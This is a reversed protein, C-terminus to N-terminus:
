LVRIPAAVSGSSLSVSYGSYDNAAEGYIDAGQKTWVGSVRKYVRVLGKQYNNYIAGIAVTSGDSSLSVSYGSGENAAEGDIDLGTQVWQAQLATALLSFVVPLFFAQKFFRNCRRTNPINDGFLDSLTYRFM